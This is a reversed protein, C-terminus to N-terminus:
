SQYRRERRAMALRLESPTPRFVAEGTARTAYWGPVGFFDGDEDTGLKRVKWEPFEGSFRVIWLATRM